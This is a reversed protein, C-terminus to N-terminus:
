WRPGPSRRRPWRSRACGGEAVILAVLVTATGTRWRPPVPWRAYALGAAASLCVVVVTWFRAPVRLDAFGPVAALLAYPSDWGLATGAFTPRPGLTCCWLVGAASLYFLLPSRRAIAARLGPRTVILVAGLLVAVWLPRMPDRISFGIGLWSARWRGLVGYSVCGAIALMWAAILGATSLRAWRPSRVTVPGLLLGGAIVLLVLM